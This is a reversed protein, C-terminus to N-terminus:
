KANTMYDSYGQVSYRRGNSKIILAGYDKTCFYRCGVSELRKLVEIKPHGYNNNKAVSIIAVEPSAWKLLMDSTSSNSGHHAVKLVDFDRKNINSVIWEEGEKEVDGTTLMHFRMYDISMVLSANNVDEIQMNNKPYLVDISLNSDRFTDGMAIGRVDVRNAKAEDILEEYEDSDILDVYVYICKIRLNEKTANQIVEVVGNMHDSDPHTIFIADIRNIGSSKLAPIIQYKGVNKKSSSGGDIVYVHGNDNSIIMGDGQGVDLVKVELGHHLKVTIVAICAVAWILSCLLRFAKYEKKKDINETDKYSKRIAIKGIAFAVIRGSYRCAIFLLMYFIMTQWWSPKEINCRGIGLHELNACTSKYLFLIFSITKRPIWSFYAFPTSNVLNTMSCNGDMCMWAFVHGIFVLLIGMILLMSMLPIIFLNLIVSYFTAEYYFSVITPFTFMFILISTLIGEAWQPVNFVYRKYMPIGVAVASVALFSLQFAADFILGNNTLLLAIGAVSVATLMDYSRKFSIAVLFLSFMFIARYASPSFGVMLGYLLVVIESLLASVRVSLGLVSNLIRYLGMALFTIHLASIALIHAIGNKQFLEKVETDLEDKNGLLMAKMISADQINLTNDLIEECRIRFLYLSYKLKSYKRGKQILQCDKFRCIIGRNDYFRYSDFEGPNTAPKYFSVSGRLRINQGIKIDEQEPFVAVVQQGQSTIGRKDSTIVKTLYVSFTQRGYNSKKSISSVQGVIEVSHGEDLESLAGLKTDTLSRGRLLAMAIAILIWLLCVPRVKVARVVSAILGALFRYVRYDM